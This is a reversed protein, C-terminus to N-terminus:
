LKEVRPDTKELDYTPGEKDLNSTIKPPQFSYMQDNTFCSPHLFTHHLFGVRDELSRFSRQIIRETCENLISLLYLGIFKLPSCELVQHKSYRSTLDTSSPYSGNNAFYIAESLYDGAFFGKNGYVKVASSFTTTYFGTGLGPAFFHHEIASVRSGINVGSDHVEREFAIVKM